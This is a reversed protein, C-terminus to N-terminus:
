PLEVTVNIKNEVMTCIAELSEFNEPLLEEDSIQINYTEEIFTLLKMIGLSDIIGEEILNTSKQLDVNKQGKVIQDQIFQQLAENIKMM